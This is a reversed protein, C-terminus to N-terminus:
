LVTIFFFSHKSGQQNQSNVLDEVLAAGVNVTRLDKKILKMEANRSKKKFKAVINNIKM